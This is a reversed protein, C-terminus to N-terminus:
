GALSARSASPSDDGRARRSNGKAEEVTPTIQNLQLAKEALRRLVPLGKGKLAETDEASFIPTKSEPDLACGIVMRVLGELYGATGNEPSVIDQYAVRAAATMERLLVTVGWQTVEVLESRLDDTGLIQDRLSM